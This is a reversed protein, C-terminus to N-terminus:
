FMRRFLGRGCPQEASRYILDVCQGAMSGDRWTPCKLGNLNELQSQYSSHPLFYPTKTRMGGLLRNIRKPVNRSQVFVSMEVQNCCLNHLRLALPM